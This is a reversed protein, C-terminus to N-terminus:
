EDDLLSDDHRIFHIEDSDCITIENAPDEMLKYVRKEVGNMTRYVYEKVKLTDKNQVRVIACVSDPIDWSCIRWDHFEEYSLPKFVEDPADKYRQWNNPLYPKKPKMLHSLM